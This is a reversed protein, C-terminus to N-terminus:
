AAIINKMQRLRGGISVPGTDSLSGAKNKIRSFAHRRIRDTKVQPMALAHFGQFALERRFKKSIRLSSVLQALEHGAFSAEWLRCRLSSCALELNATVVTLRNANSDYGLGCLAVNEHVDRQGRQDNKEQEQRAEDEAGIELACLTYEPLQVWKTM